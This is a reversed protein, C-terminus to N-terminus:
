HLLHPNWGQTFFIGQLRFYCGVGTNELLGSSFETSLLAEHAVTWPTAYLQIRSLMCTHMHEFISFYILREGMSKKETKFAFNILKVTAQIFIATIM